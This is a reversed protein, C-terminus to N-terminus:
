LHWCDGLFVSDLPMRQIDSWQLSGWIMALIICLMLGDECPDSVVAKELRQVVILPLPLAEKM